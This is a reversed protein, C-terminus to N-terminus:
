AESGEEIGHGHISQSGNDNSPHERQQVKALTDGEEPYTMNYGMSPYLAAQTAVVRHKVEFAHLRQKFRYPSRHAHKQRLSQIVPHTDHCYGTHSSALTVEHLQRTSRLAPAIVCQSAFANHLTHHHKANHM